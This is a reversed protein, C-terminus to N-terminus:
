IPNLDPSSPAWPSVPVGWDALQKLTTRATHCPAHDQETGLTEAQDLFCLPGHGDMTIGGWVQVKVPHKKTMEFREKDHVDEVTIWGSNGGLQVMSEDTWMWNEFDEQTHILDFVYNFRKMKQTPNVFPVKIIPVSKLHMM